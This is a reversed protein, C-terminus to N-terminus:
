THYKYSYTYEIRSSSSNDKQIGQKWHRSGTDQSLDSTAFVTSSSLATLEQEIKPMLYHYSDTFSYVPWLDVTFWFSSPGSKPVIPPAFLLSFTPNLWVVNCFHPSLFLLSTERKRLAIKVSLIPDLTGSTSVLDESTSAKCFTWCFAGISFQLYTAHVERSSCKRTNGDYRRWKALKIVQAVLVNVEEEQENYFSDVLYCGPFPYTDSRNHYYNVSLHDSLLKDCAGPRGGLIHDLRAVMFFIGRSVENEIIKRLVGTRYKSDLTVRNHKLLTKPGVKLHYIIVHEILM